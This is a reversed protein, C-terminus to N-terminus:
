MNNKCLIKCNNQPIHVKMCNYIHLCNHSVFLACQSWKYPRCSTRNNQHTDVVIENIMSDCWTPEQMPKHTDVVRENIVGSHGKASTDM